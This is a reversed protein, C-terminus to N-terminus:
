FHGIRNRSLVYIKASGLHITKLKLIITPLLTRYTHMHEKQFSDRHSIFSLQATVGRGKLSGSHFDRDKTGCEGFRFCIFLLVNLFCTKYIIHIRVVHGWTIVHLFLIQQKYLWKFHKYVNKQWVCNKHM